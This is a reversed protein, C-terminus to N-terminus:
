VPQALARAVLRLVTASFGLESHTGRVEIHTTQSTPHPDLCAQWAVIRDGKSYLATVPVGVPEANRAAVTAAIEDLDYGAAEYSAAAMTYKPGGVVPSGLTVVQRVSEPAERAVERAIVGGLSWGVLRVQQGSDAAQRRVVDVMETAYRAVDGRNVGLGWGDVRYGLLALYKRIAITSLDGTLYGPLVRVPGGDGRPPHGPVALLPLGVLGRALGGAEVLPNPEPATVDHDTVSPHFM